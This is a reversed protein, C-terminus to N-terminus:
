LMDPAARRQFLFAQRAQVLSREDRERDAGRKDPAPSPPKPTTQQTVVPAVAEVVYHAVRHGSGVRLVEKRIQVTDTRDCVIYTMVDAARRPTIRFAQAVEHRTVARAQKMIWVSVALWLPPRNDLGLGAPLCWTGHNRQRGTVVEAPSRPSSGNRTDGACDRPGSHMHESKQERKM